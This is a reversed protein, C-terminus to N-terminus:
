FSIAAGGPDIPVLWHSLALRACQSASASLQRVLNAEVFPNLEHEIALPGRQSCIAIPAADSQDAVDRNEDGVIRRIDPRPPLQKQQISRAPGFDNGSIRGVIEIDFTLAPSM